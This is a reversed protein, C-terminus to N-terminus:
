SQAEAPRDVSGNKGWRRNEEGYRAVEREDVLWLTPSVKEAKLSGRHVAGRVAAHAIGLRKAAEALTIRAM